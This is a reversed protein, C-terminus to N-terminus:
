GKQLDELVQAEARARAEDTLEFPSEDAGGGKM